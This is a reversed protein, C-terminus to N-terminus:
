WDKRTKLGVLVTERGTRVRWPVSGRRVEAALTTVRVTLILTRSPALPLPQVAWRRIFMTNPPPTTDHGLWRGQYDLYDVFPPVNATLTGSPSPMLGSGTDNPQDLSLNATSDSRPVPTTAQADYAWTLSRLQELKAAALIASSTQERAAAGSLTAMAFLQAVGISVTIMLAIAVVVEILTFGASTAFARERIGAM